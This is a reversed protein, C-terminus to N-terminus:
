AVSYVLLMFTTRETDGGLAALASTFLGMIRAGKYIRTNRHRAARISPIENDISHLSQLPIRLNSDPLDPKTEIEIFGKGIKGEFGSVSTKTSV